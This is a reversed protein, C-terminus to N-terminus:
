FRYWPKSRLSHKCRKLQNKYKAARARVKKATQMLWPKKRYSGKRYGGIGEHYALYLGLADNKRISARRNAESCYWGMFDVSDKFNNRFVFTKNNAKKYMDWTGDVAQCYGYATTPRKWPIIWLLKSRPPQAGGQFTSEQYIMAMLVHVPIGWKKESKQAAWYWHEYHDFVTCINQTKHRPLTSCGTALLLLLICSLKLLNKPLFIHM